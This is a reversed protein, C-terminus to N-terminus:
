LIMKRLTPYLYKREEKEGPNVTINTKRIEPEAVSVAAKGSIRQGYM